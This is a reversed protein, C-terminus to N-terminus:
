CFLTCSLLCSYFVSMFIWQLLILYQNCPGLQVMEATDCDAFEKPPQMGFPVAPNEREGPGM